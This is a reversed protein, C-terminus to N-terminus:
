HYTWEGTTEGDTDNNRVFLSIGNRLITKFLPRTMSKPATFLTMQLCQRGQVFACDPPLPATQHSGAQYSLLGVAPQGDAMWTVKPLGCGWSEDGKRETAYFLDKALAWPETDRTGLGLRVQYPVSKARSLTGWVGNLAKGCLKLGHLGM